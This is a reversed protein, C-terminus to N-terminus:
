QQKKSHVLCCVMLPCRSTMLVKAGPIHHLLIRLYHREGQCPNTTYLCGICRGRKRKTWHHQSQNWVYYEPIKHYKLMWADADVKNLKSWALLTTSKPNTIVEAVDNEQFYLTPLNEEHVALRQISTEGGM